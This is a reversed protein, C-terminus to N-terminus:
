TVRREAEDRLRLWWETALAADMGWHHSRNAYTMGTLRTLPAPDILGLGALRSDAWTAALARRNRAFGEAALTTGDAKSRRALLGGPLVGAMAAKILPKYEYPTLRDEPRVALCAAVVSDDLFPSEAAPGDDPALQHLLRVERGAAHIAALDAHAGRRPALPRAQDLVEELQAAILRRAEPTLWAPIAPPPEWGFARGGAPERAGTLLRDRLGALADRYPRGGVLEGVARWPFGDLHRHRRLRALATLPRRRLLDHYLAPTGTLVQDGGLGDLHLRAGRERARGLRWLFRAANLVALSPEDTRAEAGVGAYFEPLEREPYVVHEVGPLARAAIRAWHLDDDAADDSAMTFATLRAPGDAALCCLSTSDMGGSLDASITAGDGTRAAVAETLARRLERAGADLPLGGQPPRWADLTRAAPSGPDYVLCHGAPVPRVGRWVSREGLVHPLSDLLRLALVGPDPEAGLLAALVDSRDCAVDVGGITAHFVRRLGSASGRVLTRGGTVAVLHFSGPLAALRDIAGAPDRALLRELARRDAPARGILVLRDDGARARVIQGAPVGALVLPRGSPHSIQHTAGPLCRGAVEAAAPVDPLVVFHRVPHGVEVGGTSM